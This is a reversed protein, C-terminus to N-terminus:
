HWLSIWLPSKWAAGEGQLKEAAQTTVNMLAVVTAKTKENRWPAGM